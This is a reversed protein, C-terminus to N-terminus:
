RVIPGQGGASATYTVHLRINSLLSMCFTNDEATLQDLGLGFTLLFGFGKNVPMQFPVTGPATQWRFPETVDWEQASLRTVTPRGDQPTAPLLGAPAAHIWDVSPIRLVVCGNPKHEPPGDGSRWCSPDPGPSTHCGPSPREDYTLVARTISKTPIRDLVTTDFTVASQSVAAYCPDGDIEVQGWGVEIAAPDFIPSPGNSNCKDPYYKDARRPLRQDVDLVVTHTGSSSTQFRTAAQANEAAVRERTEPSVCVLDEPRAVRWVYGPKCTNPGYAGGSPERRSAAQANEALTETRREPSVCVTDGEFAERWVYGQQCTDPGYPLDDAAAPSAGILALLGILLAVAGVLRGVTRIRFRTHM